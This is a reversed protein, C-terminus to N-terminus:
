EVPQVSADTISIRSLVVTIRFDNSRNWARFERELVETAAAALRERISGLDLLSIRSGPRVTEYFREALLPEIERLEAVAPSVDTAKERATVIVTVGVNINYPITQKIAAAGAVGAPVDREIHVPLPVSAFAVTQSPLNRESNASNLIVSGSGQGVVMMTPVLLAGAAMLVACLTMTRSMSWTKVGVRSFPNKM